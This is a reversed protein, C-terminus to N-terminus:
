PHQNPTITLSEFALNNRIGSKQTDGADVKGSKNTDEVIPLFKPTPLFCSSNPLCPFM